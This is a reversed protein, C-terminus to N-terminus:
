PEGQEIDEALIQNQIWDDFGPSVPGPIAILEVAGFISDPTVAEVTRSYDLFMFLIYERFQCPKAYGAPQEPVITEGSELSVSWMWRQDVSNWDFLMVFTKRPWAPLDSVTLEVPERNRFPDTNVDEAGITPWQEHQRLEYGGIMQGVPEDNAAM